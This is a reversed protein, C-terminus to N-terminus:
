DSATRPIPGAYGEGRVQRGHANLAHEKRAQREDTLNCPPTILYGAVLLLAAAPKTWAFASM